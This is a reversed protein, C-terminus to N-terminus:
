TADEERSEFYEIVKKILKPKKTHVSNSWKIIGDSTYDIDTEPNFKEDVLIQKRNTYGRNSLNGHHLTSIYLPVYTYDIDSRYTHIYKQIDNYHEESFLKSQIYSVGRLSANIADGGGVVGKEYLHFNNNKIFDVRAGWVFGYTKCKSKNRCESYTASYSWKSYKGRTVTEGSKLYYVKKFAQVIPYKELHYAIYIPWEKCRFLVDCDMWIVWKAKNPLQRFGYNILSEKLFLIDTVNLNYMTVMDVYKLKSDICSPNHINNSPYNARVTIINKINNDLLKAVTLNYKNVMSKYSIPNFYPLIVWMDDYNIPIKSINSPISIEGFSKGRKNGSKKRNQSLKSSRIKITKPNPYSLKGKEDNNDINKICKINIKDIKTKNEPTKIFELCIRNTSNIKLHDIPVLKEILKNACIDYIHTEKSIFPGNVIIQNYLHPLGQFKIYLYKKCLKRGPIDFIFEITENNNDDPKYCYEFQPRKLIFNGSGTAPNSKKSDCVVLKNNFKYQYRTFYNLLSVTNM